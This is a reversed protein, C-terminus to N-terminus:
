AKGLRRLHPEDKMKFEYYGDPLPTFEFWASAELLDDMLNRARIERVTISFTKM